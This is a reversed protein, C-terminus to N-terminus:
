FEDLVADSISLVDVLSQDCRYISTFYSQKTVQDNKVFFFVDVHFSTGKKGFYERQGERHRVPLIKQCFDKLWFGTEETLHDFCWAKAKRQQADRTQHKIYELIKRKSVGYAM